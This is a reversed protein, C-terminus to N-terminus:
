WPSPPLLTGLAALTSEAGRNLNVGTPTLGDFGAGTDPDYMAAGVDNGGLLWDVCGTRYREWSQDGTLVTARACADAMAWAEIPQQDFGPRTDDAARGDVPTFSFGAEGIEEMVLWDLLLLGDEVMADDELTCGTGILAEPLRANDYTLRDSPWCWRGPRPRPLLSAVRELQDAAGPTSVAVADIAGLAAYAVAMPHHSHLDAGAAFAAAARSRSASDPAHRSAVGLGWLARGHTDDTGGRDTWEGSVAQRNRWGGAVRGHEVFTLCSDYAALEADSLPRARALVVLARANDDTCLGHSLRPRDHDAHELLGRDTTLRLLHDFRVPVDPGPRRQETEGRVHADRFPSLGPGARPHRVLPPAAPM